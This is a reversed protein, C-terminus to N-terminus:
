VNRVLRRLFETFAKFYNVVMNRYSEVCNLRKLEYLMILYDPDRDDTEHTM